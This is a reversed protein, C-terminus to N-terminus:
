VKWFIGKQYMYNMCLYSVALFCLAFILSGNLAGFWPNFIQSYLWGKLSTDGIPWIILVRALVGAFMFFAISNAGFVVFPASCWQM